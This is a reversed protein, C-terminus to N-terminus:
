VAPKGGIANTAKADAKEDETDNGGPRLKFAILVPAAIYVSSFVGIGVGFLMAFTFSRIVEGGFLYLSLLALMVTLGTLITRSLTQNLSVDIIMSLPMKKYRRLNERIRDYIVVTDNLSYGIITLIAAISTLNFEIGLFVFLGITFVVDHVMSIIAGLAFQWEFRVWIYAMIAFMALAIGITSTFTLDGSVAPGVVEVRRFEYKDELEGRVLTIASQEANEGGEQAQIRILVDQPTGFGQAQIEGLNLQSLRDRIDAIDADGQKAKVEIVSGGQFDIGLNLGKTVFGGVCILMVLGSLMFVYRRYRMFPIDKGDFVATRIGKPLAKPRSRRVWVGFMWATLTYATFVTTVIGVALTVAFGKVPGTGMYFLVGAVILTTINADMITAFARTFGSELSSILPKGSRVEERIREYILVNSDVAMGITLVIGAIGPLTLTSGIISLVALLMVINVILAINALLGFFGYFIFMFIVVGAAGIASAMLGANISDSGLSPGVTREEVVTLTAPLAGARLLVALDNAGQVSFNGSIQGSGGIIPERIVPASIVQNDLIIAFPKGVNQQTAQAFRQAGRSDFRFTVVPENNQQNFSAQSDVLNDGSVLARREVLYPVPPDDQSYLIESTAPPRGNMAEQVPMSTDVMRFSLKATQNLLSKLRQPDQLGPVQVIIRDSGQRQILPETTGVEDVRRRVVEISQSVASSMRYNIGDDTLNLRLVNDGADSMTVETISTGVLTGSSIPLTLDRLATKAAEYQAPDSIRVQVQQGNGALGSYKVNADRLQTRVDGVITELREKVIDSREIKLMIHSGGQLDLGLTVKNDKYWSPMGELQKDTFLNPSAIFVSILVALWIFATKWRSFHLM